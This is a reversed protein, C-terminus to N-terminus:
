TFLRVIFSFISLFFSFIRQLVSPSADDHAAQEPASWQTFWSIFEPSAVTRGAGDVTSLGKYLKMGSAAYNEEALNWMNHNFIAAARPASTCSTFRRKAADGTGRVNNWSPSTYIGYVSYTDGTCGLIWVAMDRLTEAESASVTRHGSFLAIGAYDNPHALVTKLAGNEGLCWGFLYIRTKDVNFRAAFDMIAAHISEVPCTDFYVPEPSRLILLYAGSANTVRSQLEESSWKYFNNKILEKGEYTGEGAGPMFVFLPLKENAAAKPEFYSYDLSYGGAEPGASRSWQGRLAEAGDKLSVAGAVCSFVPLLLLATLCLALIRIGTKKMSRYRKKQKM